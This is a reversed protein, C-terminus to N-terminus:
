VYDESTLMRIIKLFYNTVDASLLGVSLFKENSYIILNFSPKTCDHKLILFGSTKNYKNM